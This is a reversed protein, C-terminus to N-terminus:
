PAVPLVLHSPHRRDVFVVNRAARRYDRARFADGTNPNPDYGPASSSTVHVRLGHGRNFIISTSWLDIELPYVQGPRLFAERDFGNRFRARFQGECINISRGDPYVDCLRAVFDTDPADSGVWLKLRVRGTVELPEPLPASTFVLVDPRSEIPRQDMGGAPITLQLGGRSPVPDAANYLYSLPAEGGPVSQSLTRDGHLYWATDHTPLPPWQDATRWLNGPAQGDSVDGMVYYTVAPAAGFGNDAGKLQYDFWKWSDHVDHPPRKANDPFTLEGAKNQLVGHTWPGMVLKQKGRAGPGGRTQYSLFSDITGQAFIDYWGGLHVAATNIAGQRPAIDRTQWYEDYRPHAEWAALANTAFKAGRIWDEIMAKKFVGGPYMGAYLDPAGVTLHQCAPQPANRGVMLLQTIAGASGGWTGVKGNCWPQALLWTMTDPGDAHDLHFPLNEGESAFRGRCDQVVIAYGRKVGEAGIGAGMAKNYPTRALIVPWPGAGEPLYVDTALRVGDRAAVMETQPRPEAATLTSALALLAAALHSSGSGPFARLSKLPKM